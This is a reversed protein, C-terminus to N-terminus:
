GKRNAIATVPIVVESKKQSKQMEESGWAHGYIVEYTVPILGEANRFKEYSQIFHKFKNKGTLGKARGTAINHTGLDKLDLLIKRLDNYTMAIFEMDMVPDKVQSRQLCDGVDHMDVFNHVHVERDVEAWSQRLEYLTDRGLTSFLLLGGPKLIRQMEYVAKEIDRCWHLALNSFVLDASKSAIPLNEIDACVYRKRDFWRRTTKNKALMQEAIDVAIIKAKKYRSELLRACYGTGSGLDLIIKPQIRIYDLRELLRDAIERQLIAVADYSEAAHNFSRIIEKKALFYRQNTNM